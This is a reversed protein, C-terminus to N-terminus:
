AAISVTRSGRSGGHCGWWATLAGTSVTCGAGLELPPLADRRATSNGGLVPQKGLVAHDGLVSGEGIVTGPYVVVHEGSTYSM